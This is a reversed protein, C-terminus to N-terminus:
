GPNPKKLIMLLVYLAGEDQDADLRQSVAIKVENWLVDKRSLLNTLRGCYWIGCEGNVCRGYYVKKGGLCKRVFVITYSLSSHSHRIIM